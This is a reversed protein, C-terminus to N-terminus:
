EVKITIKNSKINFKTSGNDTVHYTGKGTPVFGSLYDENNKYIHYDFDSPGIVSNEKTKSTLHLEAILTKVYFQNDIKEMSQRENSMNWDFDIIDFKQSVSKEFDDIGAINDITEEVSLNIQNDKGKLSINKVESHSRRAGPFKSYEYLSLKITDKKKYTSKDTSWIAKIDNKSVSIKEVVNIHFPKSKYEKGKYVATIIPFDIRGLKTPKAYTYFKYFSKIVKGHDDEISSESNVRVKDLHDTLELGKIATVDTYISDPKEEFHISFDISKGLEAEPQVVFWVFEKEAKSQCSVASFTFLLIILYLSSKKKPNQM